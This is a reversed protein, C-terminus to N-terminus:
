MEDGDDKRRRYGYGLVTIFSFLIVALVFQWNNDNINIEKKVEYARSSDQSVEGSESGGEVSDSDGEAAAEVGVSPSTGGDTKVLNNVNGEVEGERGNIDSGGHGSSGHGNESGQGNGTGTGQGNGNNGKQHARIYEDISPVKPNPNDIAEGAEYGPDYDKTSSSYGDTIPIDWSVTKSIYSSITATVSNVAAAVDFTAVAESGEFKVTQSYSGITFKVDFASIDSLYHNDLRNILRLRYTSDGIRDLVLDVRGPTYFMTGTSIGQYASSGDFLNYGVGACSSDVSCGAKRAEWARHVTKICINDVIIVEGNFNRALEFVQIANSYQGYLDSQHKFEYFADYEAGSGPSGARARNNHILNHAVYVNESYGNFDIGIFSGDLDNHTINANSFRGELLIADGVGEFITNGDIVVGDNTNKLRIGFVGYDVRNNSIESNKSNDLFIQHAASFYPDKGNNALFSDKLTTNESNLIWVGNNYNNQVDVRQLLTNNSKDVLIGNISSDTKTDKVTVYNSNVIKIATTDDVSLRSNQSSYMYRKIADADSVSLITDKVIIDETNNILIGDAGENEITFGNISSGKANESITFVPQVGNGILKTNNNTIINLPNNITFNAGYLVDYDFVFKSGEEANDLLDQIKQILTSNILNNVNISDTINFTFTSVKGWNDSEDVAVANLVTFADITVAENYVRRTESSVPNSGDVTYYITVNSIDDSASLEVTQSQNYVGGISIEGGITLSVLSPPTVDWSEVVITTNRALNIGNHTVLLEVHYKGEKVYVHSPNQESSYYGDGFSWYYVNNGPTSADNFQITRETNNVHEYIFDASIDNFAFIGQNTTVILTGDDSLVPSSFSIPDGYKGTITYNWLQKGNLDLAYVINGRTLYIIGNASILPSSASNSSKELPTRWITKGTSTNFAILNEYENVYLVDAYLTPSGYFQSYRNSFYWKISGDPSYARIPLESVHSNSPYELYHPQNIVYFTGDSDICISSFSEELDEDVPHVPIEYGLRWNYVWMTLHFTYKLTGDWNIAIFDHDQSLLYITGNKAIPTAGSIAPMVYSWKLQFDKFAFLTSNNDNGSLVYLTGDDDFIPSSGTNYEGLEYKWILEGNPSICFLSSNMWNSFYINGDYGITPTCIIGSATGYRWIVLGQNNLCYLYGDSGGIYIHGTNDIVASGSSVINLNSWKTLNSLPGQEDSVGNNYQYRSWIAVTDEVDFKKLYTVAIDYYRTETSILMDTASPNLFTYNAQAYNYADDIATVHVTASETLVFPELYMLRSSSNVPNTGDLTYYITAADDDCLIKVTVNDSFVTSPTMYIIQPPNTDIVEDGISEENNNSNLLNDSNTVVFDMDLNDEYVNDMLLVDSTDNINDSAFVGGVSILFSILLLFLVILRKKTINAM